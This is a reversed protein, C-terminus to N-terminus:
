KKNELADLRDLIKNVYYALILYLDQKSEFAGIMQGEMIEKPLMGMTPLREPPETRERRKIDYQEVDSMPDFTAPDFTKFPNLLNNRIEQYLERKEDDDVHVNNIRADLIEVQAKTLKKTEM